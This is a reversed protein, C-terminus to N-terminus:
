KDDKFNELLSKGTLTKAYSDAGVALWGLPGFVAGALLGTVAHLVGSKVQGEVLQSAGPLLGFDAIALVGNMLLNGPTPKAPTATAM